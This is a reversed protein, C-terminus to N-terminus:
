AAATYQFPQSIPLDYFQLDGIEETRYGAEKEVYAARVQVLNFEAAAHTPQLELAAEFQEIAASLEGSFALAVGHNNHL